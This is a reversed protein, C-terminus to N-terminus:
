TNRQYTNITNSTSIWMFTWVAKDALYENIRCLKRKMTVVVVVRDVAIFRLIEILVKVLLLFLM